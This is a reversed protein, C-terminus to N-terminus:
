SIPHDYVISAYPGSWYPVPPCSEVFAKHAAERECKPLTHLVRLEFHTAVNIAYDEAGYQLAMKRVKNYHWRDTAPPHAIV